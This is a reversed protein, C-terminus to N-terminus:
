GEERMVDLKGCMLEEHWAGSIKKLKREKMVHIRLSGLKFRM